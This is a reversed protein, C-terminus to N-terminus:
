KYRSEIQEIVADLRASLRKACAICLSGGVTAPDPYKFDCFFQV